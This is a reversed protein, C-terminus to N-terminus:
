ARRSRAPRAQEFLGLPTPMVRAGNRGEAIHRLAATRGADDLQLVVGGARVCRPPAFQLHSGPPLAPTHAGLKM